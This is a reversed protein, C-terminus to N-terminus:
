RKFVGAAKLEALGWIAGTIGLYGTIYWDPLAGLSDTFFRAAGQADFAAWLIPASWAAFSLRRLWQDAGTLAAMEWAENHSETSEALRIKNEAVAKEIARQNERGAQWDTVWQGAIGAIISLLPM